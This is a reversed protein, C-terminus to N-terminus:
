GGSRESTSGAFWTDPIGAGFRAPAGVAPDTGSKM